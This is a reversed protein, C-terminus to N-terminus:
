EFVKLIFVGDIYHWGTHAPLFSDVIVTIRKEIFDDLKIGSDSKPYIQVNEYLEANSVTHMPLCTPEHLNLVYGSIMDGIANEYNIREVTGSLFSWGKDYPTILDIGEVQEPNFFMQRSYLNGSGFGGRCLTWVTGDNRIASVGVPVGNLDIDIIGDISDIKVASHAKVLPFDSTIGVGHLIRDFEEWPTEDAKNYDLDYDNWNVFWITGDNKLAINSATKIVGSLNNIKVGKSWVEGGNIVIDEGYNAQSTKELEQTRIIEDVNNNVSIRTLTPYTANYDMGSVGWLEGNSKLAFMVMDESYIYVVNEIKYINEPDSLFGGYTWIYAIGNDKLYGGYYNHLSIMPANAIYTSNDSKIGVKDFAMGIAELQSQTFGNARASIIVARRANSFSSDTTLRYLSHYFVRAWTENSISNTRSDTKMLYAAHSFIGGNTHCCVDNKGFDSYHRSNSMYRNDLSSDEGFIWRGSDTKGEIIGGMIDAYAENLARSESYKNSHGLFINEGNGVVYNIVAHTFEHGVVDLARETNSDRGYLFQQEIHNWYANVHSQASNSERYDISTIVRKRNGDFSERGLVDRYYDYVFAKNYHASVASASPVSGVNGSIITADSPLNYITRKAWPLLWWADYSFTTVHTELNRVEDHLKYRRGQSQANITRQNGQLDNATITTRSWSLINPVTIFIEGAKNGNAYIYFTENEFDVAWVLVPTGTDTHIFLQIETALVSLYNVELEIRELSLDDALESLMESVESNSLHANLAIEKADTSTITPTTDVSEIRTDYSSFLGQVIGSEDTTIIIQSGLVPVDNIVPSYKYFGEEQQTNQNVTQETIDRSNATFKEGFLDSAANLVVAAEELSNVTTEIFNGDIVRYNNNEDRMVEILGLSELQEIDNNDIRVAQPNNISNDLEFITGDDSNEHFEDEPKNPTKTFTTLSLVIAVVILVATISLVAIGKKTKSFEMLKNM